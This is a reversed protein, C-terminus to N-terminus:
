NGDGQLSSPSHLSVTEFPFFLFYGFLIYVSYFLLFSALTHQHTLCSLPPPPILTEQLGPQRPVPSSRTETEQTNHNRTHSMM